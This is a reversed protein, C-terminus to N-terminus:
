GNRAEKRFECDKAAGPYVSCKVLPRAVAIRATYEPVLGFLRCLLDWEGRTWDEPDLIIDEASPFERYGLDATGDLYALRSLFDPVFEAPGYDHRSLYPEFWDEDAISGNEFQLNPYLMADTMAQDSLDKIRKELADFMPGETKERHNFRVIADDWGKGDDGAMDKMWRSRRTEIPDGCYILAVRFGQAQWFRIAPVMATPDLVAVGADLFDDRDTWREFGDVALTHFLKREMPVAAAEEPTYFHYTDEGPARRPRSTSTKLLALGTAESLLKAITTKGAQARGMVLFKGYRHEPAEPDSLDRKEGASRLKKCIGEYVDLRGKANSLDKEASALLLAYAAKPDPRFTWLEAARPMNIWAMPVDMTKDPDADSRVSYKQGHFSKKEVTWSETAFKGAGDVYHRYLKSDPKPDPRTRDKM